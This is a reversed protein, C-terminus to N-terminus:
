RAELIAIGTPVTLEDPRRISMWTGGFYREGGSFYVGTLPDFWTIDVTRGKLENINGSLSIMDRTLYVM